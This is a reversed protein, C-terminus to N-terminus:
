RQLQTEFLLRVQAAASLNIQLRLSDSIAITNRLQQNNDFIVPVMKFTGNATTFNAPITMGMYKLQQAIEPRTATNWRDYLATDGQLVRVRNVSVTSPVVIWMRQLPGNLKNLMITPEGGGVNENQTTHSIIGLIKVGDTTVKELMDYEYSFEFAYPTAGQTVDIELSATVYRGGLALSLKEEDTVTARWMEAFIHEIQGADAPFGNAEYVALYEAFNWRRVVETNLIFRTEGLGLRMENLTALASGKTCIGCIRMVRGVTPINVRMPGTQSALPVARVDPLVSFLKTAM